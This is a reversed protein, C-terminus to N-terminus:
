FWEYTKKSTNDRKQAMNQQKNLEEIEKTNTM